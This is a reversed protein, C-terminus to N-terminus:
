GACVKATEPFSKSAWSASRRDSPPGNGTCVRRTGLVRRFLTEADEYCGQEGPVKALGTFAFALDLDEPGLSEEWIHIARVFFRKAAEYRAQELYLAALHYFSLGMHPDALGFAHERIQLAQLYLSEAQEYEGQVRWIM